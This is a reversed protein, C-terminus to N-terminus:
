ATQVCGCCCGFLRAAVRAVVFVSVSNGILKYRHQLSMDDPFRFHEPFGFLVVLEEPSFRRLKGVYQVMESRDLPNRAIPGPHDEDQLLLSGTARHAIRGYAATFCHTLRDLRTVVPLDKAWDSALAEESLLFPAAEEPGLQQVFHALTQVLVEQDEKKDGTAECVTDDKRGSGCSSCKVQPVSTLINEGRSCQARFRESREAIMYYRTRSNPIGVQTPSLLYEEYTYGNEECCEYWLGLMESGVFGKVNELLVWRPKNDIESLMKMVARLGNCRKDSGDKRLALRTNTFPQCPPSLTWVDAAGDLDRSRLQEVLKTRVSFGGGGHGDGGGGRAKRGGAKSAVSADDFNLAYTANAHLSIEYAVCSRLKRNRQPSPTPLDGGVAVGSGSLASEVAFRMGGIGSFFELMGITDESSDDDPASSSIEPGCPHKERVTTSGHDHDGRRKPEPASAM